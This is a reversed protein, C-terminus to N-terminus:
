KVPPSLKFFRALGRDKGKSAKVMPTPHADTSRDKSLSNRSCELSRRAAAHVNDEEDNARHRHRPHRFQHSYSTDSLLNQPIDCHTTHSRESGGSSDAQWEKAEHDRQKLDDESKSEPLPCPSSQAAELVIDVGGTQPPTASAATGPRDGEIGWHSSDEMWTCLQRERRPTGPTRAGKEPSQGPPGRDSTLCHTLKSVDLQEASLHEAESLPSIALVRRKM